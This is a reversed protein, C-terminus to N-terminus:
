YEERNFHSVISYNLILLFLYNLSNFSSVMPTTDFFLMPARLIRQLMQVHLNKSAQILGLSLFLGALLNFIAEILGYMAYFGIRKNRLSTINAKLPDVSDESWATLWLNSAINFLSSGAFSLLTFVIFWISMSLLFDKYVKFKVSGVEQKEDHILRGKDKSSEKSPSKPGSFSGFEDSMKRQKISQELHEEKEKKDEENIYTNLIESFEGKAEILEDYSGQESIEGDKLVIIRDVDKLIPM